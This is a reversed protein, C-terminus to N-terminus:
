KDSLEKEAVTRLEKKAESAAQSEEEKAQKEIARAQEYVKKLVNFDELDLGNDSDQWWKPSEVLRVQLESVMYAVALADENSQGGASGLLDRRLRDRTVYDRMTLRTKARFKGLRREKSVEGELDLDFNREKDNVM